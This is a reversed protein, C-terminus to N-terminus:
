PRIRGGQRLGMRSISTLQSGPVATSEHHIGM